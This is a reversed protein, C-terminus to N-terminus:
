QPYFDFDKCHWVVILSLQDLEMRWMGGDSWCGRLAMDGIM